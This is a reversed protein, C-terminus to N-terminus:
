GRAQDIYNQLLSPELYGPAYGLMTGDPQYIFSTPYGSIRYMRTVTLNTDYVIKM